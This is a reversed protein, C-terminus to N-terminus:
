SALQYDQAAPTEQPYYARDIEAYYQDDDLEHLRSQYDQRIHQSAQYTNHHALYSDLDVFQEEESNEELEPIEFNEINYQDQSRNYRQEEPQVTSSSVRPIQVPIANPWDTEQSTLQQTPTGPTLSNDNEPETVEPIPPLTGQITVENAKENTSLSTDGDIDPDFNPAETQVTDGQNM